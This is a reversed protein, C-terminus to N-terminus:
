YNLEKTTIESAEPKNIMGIKNKVDTKEFINQIHKTVTREAIFLSM